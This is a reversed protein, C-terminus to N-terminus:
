RSAGTVRANRKALVKPKIKSEPPATYAFASAKGKLSEEAQRTGGNALWEARAEKSYYIKRAVEVFRPGIGAKRYGVLTQPTIDLSAAAEPEDDYGLERLLYGPDPPEPRKSM